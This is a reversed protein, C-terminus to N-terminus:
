MKNITFIFLQKFLNSNGVNENKHILIYINRVFINSNMRQLKLRYRYITDTHM